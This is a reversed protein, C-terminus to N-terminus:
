ATYTIEFNGSTELFTINDNSVSGFNFNYVTDETPSTKINKSHSTNTNVQIWTAGDDTSEWGNLLGSACNIFTLKGASSIASGFTGTTNGCFMKNQTNNKFVFWYDTDKLGDPVTYSTDIVSVTATTNFGRYTASVTYNGAEETNVSSRDLIAEATVDATTADAYTATITYSSDSDPEGVPINDRNITIKTIPNDVYEGLEAYQKRTIVEAKGSDVLGKIYDFLTRWKSIDPQDNFPMHWFFECVKGAKIKDIYGPIADIGSAMRSLDYSSTNVIFSGVKSGVATYNKARWDYKSTGKISNLNCEIGDITAIPSGGWVGVTYIPFGYSEELTARSNDVYVAGQAGDTDALQEMIATRLEEETKTGGQEVYSTHLSTLFDGTLKESDWLVKASSGHQAVEGLNNDNLYKGLTIIDVGDTFLAPADTDTFITDDVDNGLAKVISANEAEVNMTYPFNYTRLLRFFKANGSNDDDTGLIIYKKDTTAKLQWTGTQPVSLTPQQEGTTTNMEVFTVNTFEYATVATNQMTISTFLNGTKSTNTCEVSLSLHGSTTGEETTIKVLEQSWIGKLNIWHQSYRVTTTFNYDAELIYNKGNVVSVTPGFATSATLEEGSFSVNDLLITGDYVTPEDTYTFTVTIKREFGGYSVIITYEGEEKSKVSDTNITSSETVDETTGDSYTATVTIDNTSFIENTLYEVKTKSAVIRILQKEEESSIGANKELAAIRNLMRVENKTSGYTDYAYSYNCILAGKSIAYDILGELYDPPQHFLLSAFGKNQVADDIAQKYGDETSVSVRPHNYPENIGYLDGYDFFLRCWEDTRKDCCINDNGDDDTGGTRVIGRVNFGARVLKQKYMVFKEFLYNEDDINAETVVYGGHALVECDVEDIGRQMAQAITEGNALSMYLKSPIAGFCCPVGKKVFLDVISYTSDISDDFTFAILGTPMPKWQFDNKYQLRKGFENLLYQNNQMDGMSDEIAVELVPSQYGNGNIFVKVATEPVDVVVDSFTQMSVWESKAIVTNNNDLFVYAYRDSSGGCAGSFKIKKEGKLDYSLATYQNGVEYPEANKIGYQCKPYYVGVQKWRFNISNLATSEGSAGQGDAGKPIGLNLVPNEKDGTITATADSGSPLTEVTGITLNPTTGDNGPEGKLCPVEVWEGNVKINLISNSAM